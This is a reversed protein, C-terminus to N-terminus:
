RPHYTWTGDDYIVIYGGDIQLVDVPTKGALLDQLDADSLQLEHTIVSQDTSTETASLTFTFSLSALFFLLAIM